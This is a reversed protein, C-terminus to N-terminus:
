KTVAPEIYRRINKIVVAKVPVDRHGGATGTTTKAIKDVIDMGEVVKGFVCYGWGRDTKSKHDLSGANRDVLNIFFQCTASDVVGTRAMALTGRKNSLGNDAENKVPKDTEKQTMEKTFGGGQIMFGDIVRHFVTEDYFKKNVYNLINSVTMPAKDEFLEAKINGLSTEIIIQVTEPEKKAKTTLPIRKLKLDAAGAVLGFGIMFLIFAKRRM